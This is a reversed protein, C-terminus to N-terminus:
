LCPAGFAVCSLEADTGEAQQKWQSFAYSVWASARRAMGPFFPREWRLFFLCFCFVWVVSCDTKTATASSGWSRTPLSPFSGHLSLDPGSSRPVPSPAAGAFFLLPSSLLLHGRGGGSVVTRGGCPSRIPRRTGHLRRPTATPRRGSAM